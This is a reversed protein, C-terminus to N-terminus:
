VSSLLHFFRFDRNFRSRKEEKPRRGQSVSKINQAKEKERAEDRANEITDRPADGSIDDRSPEKRKRERM